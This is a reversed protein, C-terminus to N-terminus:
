KVAKLAANFDISSGYVAASKPDKFAAIGWGMPSKFKAAASVYAANQAAIWEGSNYDKVEIRGTQQKHKNLYTLLDGIDCFYLVKDGETIKSTFKSGLDSMMGCEACKITEAFGPAAALAVLFLAVTINRIMKEM